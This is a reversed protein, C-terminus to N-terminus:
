PRIRSRQRSRCWATQPTMGTRTRSAISCWGAGSSRATARAGDHRAERLVAAPAEAPAAPQLVPRRPLLPARPPLELLPLGVDWFWSGKMLTSWKAPDAPDIDYHQGLRNLAFAIPFVFFVPVIYLKCRSPGAASAARDRRPRRAPVRDHGPARARHTQRLEPEYAATEKRPPASTSRSSRRRSTSCSSGARTSRRRSTTASRITKTRDSSPTITSTGARSSRRPSAARCRTSFGSSASPATARSRRPRRPARGRAAARHLQLGHLGAVFAFPLWLYWRDFHVIAVGRPSSRPSTRSRSRARAAAAAESAAPAAGGDAGRRRPRTQAAARTRRLVGHSHRNCGAAGESSIWCSSTSTAM